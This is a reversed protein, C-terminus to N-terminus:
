ALPVALGALGLPIFELLTFSLEPISGFAGLFMSAYAKLPSVGQSVLLFATLSFGVGLGLIMTVVTSWKDWEFLSFIKKLTKNSNV